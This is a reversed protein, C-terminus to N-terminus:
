KEIYATFQQYLEDFVLNLLGQARLSSETESCKKIQNYFDMDRVVLVKEDKDILVEGSVLLDVDYPLGSVITNSCFVTRCTFEYAMPYIKLNSNRLKRGIHKAKICSLPVGKINQYFEEATM